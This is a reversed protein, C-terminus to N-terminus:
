NNNRRQNRFAADIKNQNEKNLKKYYERTLADQSQAGVGINNSIENRRKKIYEDKVGMERQADGYTSVGSQMLYKDNKILERGDKKWKDFNEGKGPNNTEYYNKLFENKNAFSQKDQENMNKWQRNADVYSGQRTADRYDEKSMQGGRATYSSYNQNERDKLNNDYEKAISNNVNNLANNQMQADSMNATISDNFARRSRIGNGSGSPGGNPGGSPGNNNYNEGGGSSDNTNNSSDSSSGQSDRIAAKTGLYRGFRFTGSAVKAGAGVAKDVFSEKVSKYLDTGEKNLSGSGLAKAVVDDIQSLSLLGGAILVMQALLDPFSNGGFLSFSQFVPILLYLINMSFVATYASIAKNVFSKRWSTLSDGGDLPMFSMMLPGVMLLAFLTFLRSILGFTFTIMTKGLIWVFFIAIVFNYKSLDYYYNVLGINYKNFYEIPSTPTNGVISSEPAKTADLRQSNKLKANLMFVTDILDAAEEQSNPVNFMGFNTTTGDASDEYLIVTEYYNQDIRARNASYLAIKNSLASLSLFNSPAVQGFFIYYIYTGNTEELNSQVSTDVQAMSLSSQSTASDIAFLVSNGLFLGFYCALPVVVFSVIAKLANGIIKGKNTGKSKPEGPAVKNPSYENRIIAAITTVFLLIASLIVVSWFAVAIINYQNNESSLFTKTIIQLILDGSQEVKEGNLYYTDLGAIKRFLFQFIEVANLASSILFYGIQALFILIGGFFNGM